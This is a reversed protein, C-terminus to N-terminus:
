QAGWLEQAHECWSGPLVALFVPDRCEACCIAVCSGCPCLVEFTEADRCPHQAAHHRLVEPSAGVRASM